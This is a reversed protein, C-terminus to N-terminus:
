KHAHAGIRMFTQEMALLGQHMLLMAILFIPNQVAGTRDAMEKLLNREIASCDHQMRPWHQLQMRSLHVLRWALKQLWKLPRVWKSCSGM